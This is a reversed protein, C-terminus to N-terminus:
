CIEFPFLFSFVKDLRAAWASEHHQAGKALSYEFDLGEIYGASLLAERAELTVYKNDDDQGPINSSGEGSDLWLRLDHKPLQKIREITKLYGRGDNTVWFSPSLVAHHKAFDPYEWAIYTSFVGGM